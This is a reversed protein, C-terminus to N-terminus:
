RGLFILFVLFSWYFYRFKVVRTDSKKLSPTESHFEAFGAVVDVVANKARLWRLLDFAYLIGVRKFWELIDAGVSVELQDLSSKVRVRAFGLHSGEPFREEARFRTIAIEGRKSLAQKLHLPHILRFIDVLCKVISVGKVWNATPTALRNKVRADPNRVPIPKVRRKVLDSKRINECDEGFGLM